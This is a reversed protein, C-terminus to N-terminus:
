CANSSTALLMQCARPAPAAGSPLAHVQRTHSSAPPPNFCAGGHTSHGTSPPARLGVVHPRQACTVQAMHTPGLVAM